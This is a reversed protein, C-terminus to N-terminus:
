VKRSQPYEGEWEEGTCMCLAPAFSLISPFICLWRGVFRGKVRGQRATWCSATWTFVFVPCLLQGLLSGGRRGYNVMGYDFGSEHYEIAFWHRKMTGFSGVSLSVSSHFSAASGLSISNPPLTCFLGMVTYRFGLRGVIGQCMGDLAIPLMPPNAPLAFRTCVAPRGALFGGPFSLLSFLFFFCYFLSLNFCYCFFRISGGRILWRPCAGLM